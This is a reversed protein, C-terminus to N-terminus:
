FFGLAEGAITNVVFTRDLYRNGRECSTESALACAHCAAGHLTTSGPAPVFEACHPDSTCLEAHRLAQALLRDFKEPQGLSVLGGLTGEADPAATYLLIGAMPESRGGSYIRERISAAAYGCELAFERILLHSLTHLLFYRLDPWGENPDLQRAARWEEHAALLANARESDRVRAEWAGLRAEALRIFIGEGRVESAPVWTPKHSSLPGKNDPNPESWDPAEVRTFGTLAIVERLREVLVVQSIEAEHSPPVAVEQLLFDETAPASSPHTLVEWEPGRLDIEEISEASGRRRAAIAAEIATADQGKFAALKPNYKIAYGLEAAPIAGVIAWYKEVLQGIADESRPISLVSMNIPFWANSAGLLMARPAAPCDGEFQRLHPHRGRCAPLQRAAQPGFARAMSTISKCNECRLLVDTPRNSEGTEYLTLIPTDCAPNGKHAFEIWPFDDMHGRECALIFRAPVAPPRAKSRCNAHVFHVRDTRYAHSKLEFLGSGIPALRNCASNTCRLWRPFPVAPVGVRAWEEFPTNGEPLWPASRLEGVQQGLSFKVAALLRDESIVQQRADQWADLGGIMVSLHPLDVVSGVGYSYMLQSPRLAGVRVPYEETV